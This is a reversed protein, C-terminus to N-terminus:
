VLISEEDMEDQEPEEKRDSNDDPPKGAPDGPSPSTPERQAPLEVPLEVPIEFLDRETGGETMSGLPDAPAPVERAEERLGLFLTSVGFNLAVSLALLITPKM